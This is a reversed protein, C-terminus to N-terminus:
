GHREEPEDNLVVARMAVADVDARDVVGDGSLDWTISVSEGGRELARALRLADVVDVPEGPAYDGLAVAPESQGPGVWLTPLVVAAVAAAAAVGGWVGAVRWGRRRGCTLHPEAAAIIARDVEEPVFPRDALLARLDEALAENPEPLDTQTRGDTM